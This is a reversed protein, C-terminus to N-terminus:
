NFSTTLIASLESMLDAFAPLEKMQRSLSNIFANENGSTMKSALLTKWEAPIINKFRCKELYIKKAEILDIDNKHFRLIYWSDYLDRPYARQIITRLKEALIEELKYTSIKVECKDSYQHILPLSSISSILKEYATFDLKIRSPNGRHKRPGIYEIKGEFAEEDDVSRTQKLDALALELGSQYKLNNCIEIMESKLNNLEIFKGVTFDLDESFRYNKFYVKRLATGGKFVLNSSLNSEFIGKLIWSLVYDREIVSVDVGAVAAERKLEALNIM